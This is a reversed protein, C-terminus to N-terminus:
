QAGVGWLQRLFTTFDKAVGLTQLGITIQYLQNLDAIASKLVAVEGTTYGLAVLDADVHSDFFAKLIATEAFTSQLDRSVQGMRTDIEGKTVLIGVSM